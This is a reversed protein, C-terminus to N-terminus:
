DEWMKWSMKHKHSITTDIKELQQQRKERERKTWQCTTQKWCGVLFVSEGRRRYTWSTITMPFCPIQERVTQGPLHAPQGTKELELCNKLESLLWCCCCYLNSALWTDFLWHALLQQLPDQDQEPPYNLIPCQTWEQPSPISSGLLSTPLPAPM